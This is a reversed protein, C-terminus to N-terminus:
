GSTSRPTQGATTADWSSGLELCGPLLALGVVMLYATTVSSSLEVLYFMVLTGLFPGLVTGEGGLLVWLLPMSTDAVAVSYNVGNVNLTLNTAM